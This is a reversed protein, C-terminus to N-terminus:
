RNAPRLGDSASAYRALEQATGSNFGERMSALADRMMRERDNQPIAAQSREAAQRLAAKQKENGTDPFMM